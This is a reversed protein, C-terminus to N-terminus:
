GTPSKLIQCKLTTQSHMGRKPPRVHLLWWREEEDGEEKRLEFIAACRLLDPADEDRVRKVGGDRYLDFSCQQRRKSKRCRLDVIHLTTEVGGAAAWLAAVGAGNGIMADLRLDYWIAGYIQESMGKDPVAYGTSGFGVERSMSCAPLGVVAVASLLLRSALNRM